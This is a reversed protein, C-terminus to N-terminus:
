NDESMCGALDSNWSNLVNPAVLVIFAVKVGFDVAELSLHLVCAFCLFLIIHEPCLHLDHM